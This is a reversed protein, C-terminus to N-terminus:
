PTVVLSAPVSAVNGIIVSIEQTGLSAQAPVVFNVQTVGVLGPPIGIFQIAAKIGGITVTASQAPAPLNALSTGAPPASGTPIAPTVAGDGTIFITVVQGRTASKAPVVAGTRDTFIGPATAAVPFASSSTQGNNNIVLSVTSNALAEYPIQLNIQSPSVYYLPATVGNITASVGALQAPLPVTAASWTSPALNSGFVTLIMGPAFSQRFSAGNALSSISPPGSSASSVTLAVSATATTFSNDGAYQATINNLGLRLQGGTVTLPAAATGGSGALPAVGLSESGLNFAVNGSPTNGTASTVTATLSVVGGSPLSSASASMTMAPTSRTVSASPNSWAHILTNADVSGLGTAQDYGPTASFGYSGSTCNRSRAGCTVNVINDGATIDHFVGAATQALTYLKPNINGLGPASQAGTSLLYQNLLTAIGAFAPASVSTGGFVSLAGNTYVLFGDHEASATLSVDPVNRANNDPVGAGTQWSPKLFYVSAGGGGSSPEDATSDNWVMEPIYSLVSASNVDNAANWYVGSGENFETGGVGTVEPIGAPLDVAPGGGNTSPPNVCDAGGSDGSASFWTMGQANGQRAWSQMTLADSRPTLTECLGYSLSLVPALNQDIAYQVADMVDNSYVYILSANPAVAGSWELDLDAEALDDTQIGPDRTNPVLMVQPDSPPLNFRSRFQQIDALKIQTQGAVVIKQGDGSIGASYLPQINYITAVDSPSLYHNGKSSTFQPQVGSTELTRLRKSRPKMRFDNLGHIGRVVLELAQPITPESDNAFHMEGNVDYRHIEAGFANRVDGATGSFSIWNRGRAVGTVKFNQQELWQVIKNLDEPSTGFRDAYEEPTLWHHYNPSAADQQEALLKDLAAQQDASPKLALTLAPLDLFSDARGLDHDPRANPHVNGSLTVRRSNEIRGSIRNRQAIAAGTALFSAIALSILFRNQM